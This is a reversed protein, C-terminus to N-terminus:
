SGTGSHSYAPAECIPLPRKLCTLAIKSNGWARTASPACFAAYKVPTMTTIWTCSGTGVSPPRQGASRVDVLECKRSRNPPSDTAVRTTHGSRRNESAAQGPVLLTKANGQAIPPAPPESAPCSTQANRTPASEILRPWSCRKSAHPFGSTAATTLKVGAEDSWPGPVARKSANPTDFGVPTPTAWDDGVNMTSRAGPAHWRTPVADMSRVSRRWPPSKLMVHGQSPTM